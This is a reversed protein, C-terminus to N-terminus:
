RQEPRELQLPHGAARVEEVRWTTGPYLVRGGLGRAAWLIQGLVQLLSGTESSTSLATLTSASVVRAFSVPPFPFQLTM